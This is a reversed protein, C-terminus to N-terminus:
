SEAGAAIQRLHALAEYDETTFEDSRNAMRNDALDLAFTLFQREDDTLPAEAGNLIAARYADLADNADDASMGHSKTRPNWEPWVLPNYVASRADTESDPNTPSAGVAPGDGHIATHQRIVMRAHAHILRNTTEHDNGAKRLQAYLEAGPHDQPEPDPGALDDRLVAAQDPTLELWYPERDPGSFCVTVTDDDGYLVDNLGWRLPVPDDAVTPDAASEDVYCPASPRHITSPTEPKGCGCAAPQGGAQRAADRIGAVVEEVRDLDVAIGNTGTLLLVAPVGRMPRVILDDGDEDRYEFAPQDTM